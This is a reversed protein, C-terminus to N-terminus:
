EPMAYFVDVKVDPLKKIGESAAIAIDKYVIDTIYFTQGRSQVRITWLRNAKHQEPM